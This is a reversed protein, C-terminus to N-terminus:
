HPAEPAIEWGGGMAKYLAILNAAVTQESQVLQDESAYLSRQADLVNLFDALGLTKAVAAVFTPAQLM